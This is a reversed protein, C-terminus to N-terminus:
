PLYAHALSGPGGEVIWGHDSLFRMAWAPGDATRDHLLLHGTTSLQPLWAKLDAEVAGQSHDADIFLLEIPSQIFAPVHSTHQEMIAVVGSVGHKLLNEILVEKYSGQRYDPYLDMWPLSEGQFHDVTIVLGVDTEAVETATLIGQALCITSRGKYAGLEVILTQPTQARAVAALAQSYLFRGEAEELYGEIDSPFTFKM